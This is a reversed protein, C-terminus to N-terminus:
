IREEKRYPELAVRLDLFAHVSEGMGGIGLLLFRISNGLNAFDHSRHLPEELTGALEVRM